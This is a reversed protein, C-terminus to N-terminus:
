RFGEWIEFLLGVLFCGAIFLLFCAVIVLLLAIGGWFPLTVWWWSVNVLAPLSFMKGLVLIIGLLGIWPSALNITTKTKSAASM